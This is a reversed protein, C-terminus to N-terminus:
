QGGVGIVSGPIKFVNTANLLETYPPIPSACSSCTVKHTVSFDIRVQASFLTKNITAGNDVFSRSGGVNVGSEKIYRHTISKFQWLSQGSSPYYIKEWVADEYSYLFWTVADYIKWVYTKNWETNDISNTTETVPGNVTRGAAVFNNMLAQCIQQCTLAGGGGGEGGSCACSTFLFVESVLIGNVWTQYYWDTCVMVSGPDQCADALTPKPGGGDSSGEAKATLRVEKGAQLVGSQYYATKIIAKDMGYQMIAGSFSAPVNALALMSPMVGLAQVDAVSMKTNDPIVVAYGGGSISGQANQGATFFLYVMNGTNNKKIRMPVIWAKDAENYAASSWQMSAAPLSPLQRSSTINVIATAPQSQYWAQLKQVGANDDGTVPNERKCGYFAALVICATIIFQFKLKM